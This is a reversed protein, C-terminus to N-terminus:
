NFVKFWLMSLFVLILSLFQTRKKFCCFFNGASDSLSEILGCCECSLKDCKCGSCDYFIDPDTTLQRIALDSVNLKKAQELNERMKQGMTHMNKNMNVRMQEMENQMKEMSKSFSHLNGNVQFDEDLWAAAIGITVLCVLLTLNRSFM